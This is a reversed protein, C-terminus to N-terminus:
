FNEATKYSGIYNASVITEIASERQSVSAFPISPLQSSTSVISDILADAVKKQGSESLHSEDFFNSKSSKEKKFLISLDIFKAGNNKAVIKLVERVKPYVAWYNKIRDIDLRSDNEFGSIPQLALIVKRNPIDALKCIAELNKYYFNFLFQSNSEKETGSWLGLALQRQQPQYALHYTDSPGDLVIVIDPEFYIGITGLIFLEMFSTYGGQALNFVEYNDKELTTNLYGSITKNSTTAGYGFATSGGLLIINKIGSKKNSQAKQIMEKLNLDSWIGFDNTKIYKGLINPTFTRFSVWSSLNRKDGMKVLRQAESSFSNLDIGQFHTNNQIRKLLDKKHKAMIRQTNVWQTLGLKNSFSDIFFVVGSYSLLLGMVLIVGIWKNSKVTDNM